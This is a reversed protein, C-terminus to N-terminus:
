ATGSRPAPGKAQTEPQPPKKRRALQRADCVHEQEARELEARVQSTAVVANCRNCVSEIRRDRSPRRVFAPHAKSTM